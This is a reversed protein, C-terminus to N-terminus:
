KGWSPVGLPEEVYLSNRLLGAGDAISCAGIKDPLIALHDPMLNRAIRGYEMGNLTGVQKQVDM